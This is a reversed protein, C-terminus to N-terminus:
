GKKSEDAGAKVLRLNLQKDPKHQKVLTVGRMGSYDAPNRPSMEPFVEMGFHIKLELMDKLVSPNAVDAQNINGPVNFYLQVEGGEDAIKLFFDKHSRFQVLLHELEEFLRADGEYEFLHNWSSREWVGSLSTGKPTVRPEGAKTSVYPELKLEDSIIRPDIDPHRILLVISFRKMASEM